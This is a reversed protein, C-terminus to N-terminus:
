SDGSLGDCVAILRSAKTLRQSKVTEADSRVIRIVIGSMRLRSKM